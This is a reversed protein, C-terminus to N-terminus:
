TSMMNLLLISKRFKEHVSLEKAGQGLIGEVKRMLNRKLSLQQTPSSAKMIVRAARLAVELALYIHDRRPPRPTKVSIGTLSLCVQKKALGSLHKSIGSVSPEPLPLSLSARALLLRAIQCPVPLLSLIPPPFSSAPSLRFHDSIAKSYGLNLM